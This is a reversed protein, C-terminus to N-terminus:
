NSCTRRSNNTKRGCEATEEQLTRLSKRVQELIQKTKENEERLEKGETLCAAAMDSTQLWADIM